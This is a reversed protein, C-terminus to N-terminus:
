KTSIVTPTPPFLITFVTGQGRTSRLDCRLDHKELIDHVIPLGLGTGQRKTTYFVDFVKPLDDPLIGEGTDEFALRTFEDARFLRVTLTGGNPMADLANIIINQFAQQLLEADIDYVFEERDFVEVCTVHQTILRERLISIAQRVIPVIASPVRRPSEAKIFKLTDNLIRELRLSEDAIIRIYAENAALHKGNLIARAFGGVAVLPNRIDHAMKASLEGIAALKESRVLRQQSEKLSQHAEEVERVKKELKDVLMANQVAAGIQHAFIQLTAVEESTIERGSISNDIVLLGVAGGSTSLPVIALRDTEFTSRLQPTAFKDENRAIRLTQQRQFAERLAAFGDDPEPAAVPISLRSVIQNVKFDTGDQVAHYTMLIHSLSSEEESLRSWLLGAEHADSPGIAKRGKIWQREDDALLLFARNFRFGQGATAAVLIMDLIEDLDLSRHILVSIENIKALNALSRQRNEELTVEPTRDRLMLLTQRHGQTRLPVLTLECFIIDHNKTLCRARTDRITDELHLTESLSKLTRLFPTGEDFLMSIPRGIMEGETYGFTKEASANWTCVTLANDLTIIADPSYSLVSHLLSREAQFQLENARAQTNDYSFKLIMRSQGTENVVPIYVEEISHVRGNDTVDVVHTQITKEQMCKQVIQRHAAELKEYRHHFADWFWTGTDDPILLQGNVKQLSHILEFIPIHDLM